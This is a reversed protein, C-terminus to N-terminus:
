MGGETAGVNSRNNEDAGERAATGTVFIASIQPGVQPSIDAAIGAEDEAVHSLQPSDIIIITSAQHATIGEQARHRPNHAQSGRQHPEARRRNAVAALACTALFLSVSISAILVAVRGVVCSDGKREFIGTCQWNCNNAFIPNGPSSFKAGGPLANTCSTCSSGQGHQCTSRFFGAACPEVDCRDCLAGGTYSSHGQFQQESYLVLLYKLPCSAHSM